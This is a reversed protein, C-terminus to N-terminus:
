KSRQQLIDMINMATVKGKDGSSEEAKHVNAKSGASKTVKHGTSVKGQSILTSSPALAGPAAGSSECAVGACGRSRSPTGVLNDLAWSKGSSSPCSEGAISWDGMHPRTLDGDAHTVPESVFREQRAEHAAGPADWPKTDLVALSGADEAERGEMTTSRDLSNGSCFGETSPHGGEESRPANANARDDDARDDHSGHGRGHPGEVADDAATSKASTNLAALVADPLGSSCAGATSRRELQQMRQKLQRRQEKLSARLHTETARGCDHRPIFPPQLSCLEDEMSEKPRQARPKSVAAAHKMKATKGSCAAQFSFPSASELTRKTKTRKKKGIAPSPRGLLIGATAQQLAQAHSGAPQRKGGRQPGGRRLHRSLAEPLAQLTQALSGQLPNSLAALSPAAAELQELKAETLGALTSLSPMKDLVEALAALKAVGDESSPEQLYFYSRRRGAGQGAIVYFSKGSPDEAIRHVAAPPEWATSSGESPTDADDACPGASRRYQAAREASVHAIVAEGPPKAKPSQWLLRLSSDPLVSLVLRGGVHRSQEDACLTVPGQLRGPNRGYCALLRGARVSAVPKTLCQVAKAVDAMSVQIPQTEEESSPRNSEDGGAGSGPQRSVCFVLRSAPPAGSSRRWASPEMTLPHPRCQLGGPNAECAKSAVRELRLQQVTRMIDSLSSDKGSDGEVDDGSQRSLLDGTHPSAQDAFSVAAAHHELESIVGLEFSTAQQGSGPTLTFVPETVQHGSGPTLTFVS